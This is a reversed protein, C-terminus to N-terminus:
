ERTRKRSESAALHTAREEDGRSQREGLSNADNLAIVIAPGFGVDPREEVSQVGSAM